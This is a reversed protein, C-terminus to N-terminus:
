SLLLEVVFTTEKASEDLYLRGGHNEILKRSISLGLGTGKGIDKTTFFPQFIKERIDRPIGAGSDVVNLRVKGPGISAALRVWSDPTKEVAHFANTLLNLLVQSIEGSRCDVRVEMDLKVVDIRIGNDHFKEKVVDLVEDILANVGHSMMADHSSDRSVRKMSQVTRSIRQITNSTKELYHSFMTLDVQGRSVNKQMLDIFGKLISLPNNIEHAIGGAMEGLATLKATQSLKAESEKRYSIDECTIVVGGIEGQLNHWPVLQWSIWIHTGPSVEIYEEERGLREGTQSKLIREKWDSNYHEHADWVQVGFPDAVIFSYNQLWADSMAMYRSERDLMAIPLPLATLLAKLQAEGMRLNEQELLKALYRRHEAELIRGLFDAAILAFFKDESTWRRVEGVIECCIIGVIEGDFLIPVDVLSRINHPVCYSEKFEATVPSTFCDEVAVVREQKLVSFYTPADAEKLIAGDSWDNRSREFNAESTVKQRDDDYVWFGVFDADMAIAVERNLARLADARKGRSIVPDRAIVALAAQYHSFDRTKL